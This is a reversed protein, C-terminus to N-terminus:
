AAKGQLSETLTAVMAEARAKAADLSGYQSSMFHRKAAAISKNINDLHRKAQELMKEREEVPVDVPISMKVNM